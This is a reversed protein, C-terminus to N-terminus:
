TLKIPTNLEITYRTRNRNGSIVAYEKIAKINIKKDTIDYLNACTTLSILCAILLLMM